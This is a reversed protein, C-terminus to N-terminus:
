VKDIKFDKLDLKYRGNEEGNVKGNVEFVLSEEEFRVFNINYRSKPFKDDLEKSKIESSESNYLKIYKGGQNKYQVCLFKETKSFNILEIDDNVLDISSLKKGIPIERPGSKSPKSSSDGGEEEGGGGGKGGQTQMSDDITIIAVYSKGNGKTSLALKSGSYALTMIGFESKPTEIREIKAGDTKPYAYNPIGGMDVVLSTKVNDKQRIRITNNEKFTEQSETTSIDQIKYEEDKKSVKVKYEEVLSYPRDKMIKSTKIKFLSAKGIETSDDIKWGALTLNSKSEIKTKEIISTDLNKKAEDINNTMLANMYNSAVNKAIQTNFKEEESKSENDKSSGCGSLLITILLSFLIWVKRRM